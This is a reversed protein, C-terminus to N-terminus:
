KLPVVGTRVCSFFRVFVGRKLERQHPALGEMREIRGVVAGEVRREQGPCWFLLTRCFCLDFLFTAM